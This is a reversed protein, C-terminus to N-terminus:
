KSRGNISHSAFVCSAIAKTVNFIENEINTDANKAKEDNLMALGILVLGYKFRALQIKPDVSRNYNQEKLLHVNDRNFTFTM